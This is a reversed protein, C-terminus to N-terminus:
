AAPFPSSHHIIHAANAGDNMKSFRDMSRALAKSNGFHHVNWVPTKSSLM